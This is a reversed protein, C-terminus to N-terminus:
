PGKGSRGTSDAVPSHKKKRKDKKNKEQSALGNQNPHKTTPNPAKIEL